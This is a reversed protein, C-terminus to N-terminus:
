SEFDKCKDFLQHGVRIEAFLTETIDAM